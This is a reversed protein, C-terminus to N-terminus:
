LGGRRKEPLMSIHPSRDASGQLRMGLTAQIVPIRTFHNGGSLCARMAASVLM